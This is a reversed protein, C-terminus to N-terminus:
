PLSKLPAHLAKTFIEQRCHFRRSQKLFESGDRIETISITKKLKLLFGGLLSTQNDIIEGKTQYFLLAGNKLFVRLNWNDWTLQM